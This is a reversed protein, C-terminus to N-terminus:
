RPEGLKPPLLKRSIRWETWLLREVKVYYYYKSLTEDGGFLNDFHVKADGIKLKMTVQKMEFYTENNREVLDAQM